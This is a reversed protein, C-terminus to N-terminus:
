SEVSDVRWTKAIRLNHLVLLLEVLLTQLQALFEAVTESSARM